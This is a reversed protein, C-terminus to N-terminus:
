LTLLYSDSRGFPLPPVPILPKRGPAEYQVTALERYTGCANTAKTNLLTACM